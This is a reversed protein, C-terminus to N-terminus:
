GPTSTLAGLMFERAAAWERKVTAPSIELAEAIEPVSLGGFFKLEVIQAQRPSVELLKHMAQDLAMIDLGVGTSFGVGDDFTVRALGGGRKTAKRRRAHDILIQRMLRASFAFFHTRDNWQIRDHDVLRMFTENVLAAPHLADGSHERRVYASARRRLEDYVLPMLEDMAGPDGGRWALLLQTVHHSDAM